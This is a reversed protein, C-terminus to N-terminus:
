FCRQQWPRILRSGLATALVALRPNGHEFILEDRLSGILITRNSLLLECDNMDLQSRQISNVVNRTLRGSASSEGFRAWNHNTVYLHHDSPKSLRAKFDDMIKAVPILDPFSQFLQRIVKVRAFQHIWIQEYNSREHLVTARGVRLSNGSLHEQEWMRRCRCFLVGDIGAAPGNSLWSALAEIFGLNLKIPYKDDICWYIMEEDDLDALLQLVTPKIESSTRVMELRNPPIIGNFDAGVNQYPIRFRFPHGPWLRQYQLLMHKTSLRYRDCTLVIARM